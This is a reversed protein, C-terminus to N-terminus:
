VATRGPTLRGVQLAAQFVFAWEWVKRHLVTERWGVFPLEGDQARNLVEYWRLYDPHSFQDASAAQSTLPSFPPPTSGRNHDRLDIRALVAARDLNERDARTLSPAADEPRLDAPEVNEPAATDM